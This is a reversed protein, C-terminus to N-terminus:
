AMEKRTRSSNISGEIKKIDTVFIDNGYVKGLKKSSLIIKTPGVTRRLSFTSDSYRDIICASM